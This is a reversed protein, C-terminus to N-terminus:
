NETETVEVNDFTEESNEETAEEVDEVEYDGDITEDDPNDLLPNDADKKLIAKGVSVGVGIATAVAAGRLLIKTGKRVGRIPKSNWVKGADEKLNSGIGKLHELTSVRETTEETFEAEFAEKLNETENVKKEEDM